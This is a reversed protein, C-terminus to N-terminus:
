RGWYSTLSKTLDDYSQLDHSYVAHQVPIRSKAPIIIIKKALLSVPFVHSAPLPWLWSLRDWSVLPFDMSYSM